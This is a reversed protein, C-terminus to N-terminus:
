TNKPKPKQAQEEKANQKQKKDANPAISAKQTGEEGKQKEANAQASNAAQKEKEVYVDAKAKGEKIEVNTKLRKPNQVYRTLQKNLMGTITVAEKSLKLRRAIEKKVIKSIQKRRKPTHLKRLKKGLNISLIPM